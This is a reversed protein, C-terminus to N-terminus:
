KGKKLLQWMYYALVIIVALTVAVGVAAFLRMLAEDFTLSKSGGEMM